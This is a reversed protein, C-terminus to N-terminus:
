RAGGMETDGSSGSSGSAQPQIQEHSYPKRGLVVYFKNYAHVSQDSIAKRVPVLMMQAMILLTRSVIQVPFRHIPLSVQIQKDTLGRVRHLPGVSVAHICALWNHEWMKGLEKYKRNRPWGNIPLKWTVEKVDVFGVEEMAQKWKDATCIPRGMTATADEIDEIHIKLEHGADMTDDDCLISSLLEQAEFWGGPALHDFVKQLIDGKLDAWCGLTMRTHIYDLKEDDAYWDWPDRSRCLNAYHKHFITTCVKHLGLCHHPLSKM